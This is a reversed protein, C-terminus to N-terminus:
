CLFFNSNVRASVRTERPPPGTWWPSPGRVPRAFHRRPVAPEIAPHHLEGAHTAPRPVIPPSPPCRSPELPQSPQCQSAARTATADRIPIFRCRLAVPAAPKAPTTPEPHLSNIAWMGIGPNGDPRAPGLNKEKEKELRSFDLYIRFFIM